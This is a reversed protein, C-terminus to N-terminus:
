DRYVDKRHGIRIIRMTGDELVIFRLRYDGVRLRFQDLAQLRKVDGQGTESYRTLELLIRMAQEREIQRLESKAQATWEFRKV